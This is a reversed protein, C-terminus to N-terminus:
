SAKLKRIMLVPLYMVKVRVLPINQILFRIKKHISDEQSTGKNKRKVSDTEKQVAIQSRADSKKQMSAAMTHM